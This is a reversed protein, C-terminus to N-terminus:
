GLAVNTVQQRKARSCTDPGGPLGPRLRYLTFEENSRLPQGVADFPKLLDYAVLVYQARRAIPVRPYPTDLLPRQSCLRHDSLMHAVWLQLPPNMDLRISQNAPLAKDWSRLAILTRPLENTVPTLEQVTSKYATFLYAAILLPGVLRWRSVAVIACVIVLPVTFTVVKFEFYGGYRRSHFDLVALAGFLMVVALTWGLARPRRLLALVACAGIAVAALRWGETFSLGFYWHGPLPTPLDGAWVLLSRNVDLVPGYASVSKEVVGVLPVALVFALPV